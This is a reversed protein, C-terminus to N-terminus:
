RFRSVIKFGYKFAKLLQLTPRFMQREPLSDPILKWSECPVEVLEYSMAVKHGKLGLHGAGEELKRLWQVCVAYM